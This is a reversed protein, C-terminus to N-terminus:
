GEDDIDSVDYGTLIEIEILGRIYNISWLLGGTPNRYFASELYRLTQKLTPEM